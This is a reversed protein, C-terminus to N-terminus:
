AGRWRIEGDIVEDTPALGLARAVKISAAHRPHIDAVLDHAGQERLWAAMAMAAERGYGRRQHSSGIVWALAARLRDGRVTVTAQVTGVAQGSQELRVIWNFWRESGDSSRGLAQRRYRRRLEDATVPHGGTFAYLAPDELLGGMEEAHDVRLPELSLRPSRLVPASPWDDVSISPSM